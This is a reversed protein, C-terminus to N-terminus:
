LPVFFNSSLLRPCLVNGQFCFHGLRPLLFCPLVLLLIYHFHMLVEEALTGHCDCGVCRMSIFGHPQQPPSLVALPTFVSLSM